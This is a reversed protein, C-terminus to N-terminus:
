CYVRHYEQKYKRQASHLVGKMAVIDSSVKLIMSQIKHSCSYLDSVLPAFSKLFERLKPELDYTSIRKKTFHVNMKLDRASLPGRRPPISGRIEKDFWPTTPQFLEMEDFGLFDFDLERLYAGDNKIKLAMAVCKFELLSPPSIIQLYPYRTCTLTVHSLAYACMRMHMCAHAYAHM